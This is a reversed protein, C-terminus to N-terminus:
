SSKYAELRMPLGLEIGAKNGPLMKQNELDRVTWSYQTEERFVMRGARIETKLVIM